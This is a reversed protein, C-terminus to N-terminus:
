VFALASSPNSSGQKLVPSLDRVAFPVWCLLQPCALAAVGTCFLSVGSSELGEPQGGLEM